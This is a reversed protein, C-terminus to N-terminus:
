RTVLHKQLMVNENKEVINQPPSKKIDCEQDKICVYMCVYMHSLSLKVFEQVKHLNVPNSIFHSSKAQIQPTKKQLSIKLQSDLFTSVTLVM